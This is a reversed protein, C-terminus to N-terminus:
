SAVADVIDSPNGGHFKKFPKYLHQRSSFGAEKALADITYNLYKSNHIIDIFYEVRNKNVLDNFTMTYKYYIFKYLDNSSINMIKALNELSADNRTFYSKTYFENIFELESIAYDSEKTFSDGFSIKLASKNLFNPRYFVILLIYFYFTISIFHGILYNDRFLPLPLYLFLLGICFVLIFSTWQKIKDFYINNYQYKKVIGYIFYLMIIFFCIIFSFRLLKLALPTDIGENFTVITSPQQRYQVYSNEVLLSYIFISSASIVMAIFLVSVVLKFKPFYLISFINLFAGAIIAKTLYFFLILNTSNNFLFHGMAASGTAIILMGFYFKLILPRKFKFMLDVLVLISFIFVSFYLPSVIEM